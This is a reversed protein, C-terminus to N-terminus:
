PEGVAMSAMVAALVRAKKLEANFFSHRRWCRVLASSPLRPCVHKAMPASSHSAQSTTIVAM